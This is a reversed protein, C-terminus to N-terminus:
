ETPAPADPAPTETPTAPTPTAPTPAPDMTPAGPAGPATPTMGPPPTMPPATPNPGAGGGAAMGTALIDIKWRGDERVLTLADGGEKSGDSFVGELRVTARDGNETAELVNVSSLTKGKAADPMSKKMEVQAACAQELKPAIAKSSNSLYDGLGTCNGTDLKRMFEEAVGAPTGSGRSCAALAAVMAVTLILRKM